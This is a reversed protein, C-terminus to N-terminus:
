NVSFLHSCDSRPMYLCLMRPSSVLEKEVDPFVMSLCPLFISRLQKSLSSSFLWFALRRSVSSGSDSLDIVGRWEIMKSYLFRLQIESLKLVLSLLLENASHILDSQVETDAAQEFVYTAINL